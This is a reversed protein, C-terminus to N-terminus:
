PQIGRGRRGTCSRDGATQIQGAGDLNGGADIRRNIRDLERLLFKRNDFRETPVNLNMDAALGRPKSKSKRRSPTEDKLMGAHRLPAYSPGLDGPWSGKIVRGHEKIYQGDVEKETLLSFTPMGTDPHNTGRLRTYLSGMSFGRQQDGKPDTGGSLVHVHAQQHSGVPHRFSRVVAMKDAHSALMPFTGGFTVGALKTKLEGTMSRIEAPATMKPDFTEIHSAGGSLYLLVVSKDRVFSKKAAEAQASLLGALSLNGLTLGGVRLFDRRSTGECDRRDDGTFMTLM